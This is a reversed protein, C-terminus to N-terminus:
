FRNFQQGSKSSTTLGVKDNRRHDNNVTEDIESCRVLIDFIFMSPSRYFSIQMWGFGVNTHTSLSRGFKLSPSDKNFIKRVPYTSETALWEVAECNDNSVLVAIPRYTEKLPTWVQLFAVKGSCMWGSDTTSTSDLYSFLTPAKVFWTSFSSKMITQM